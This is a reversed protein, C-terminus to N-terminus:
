VFYKEKVKYPYHDATFSDFLYIDNVKKNRNTKSLYFLKHYRFWIKKPCSIILHLLKNLYFIYKPTALAVEYEYMADGRIITYITHPIFYSLTVNICQIRIKEWCTKSAGLQFTSFVWTNALYHLYNIRRLKVLTASTLYCM